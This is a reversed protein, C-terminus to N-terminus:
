QPKHSDHDIFRNVRIELLDSHPLTNRQREYMSMRQTRSFHIRYYQDNWGDIPCSGVDIKEVKYTQMTATYGRAFRVHTIEDRKDFILKRWRPTMERYEIRKSGHATEDYWHYTLVLHLLVMRNNCNAESM